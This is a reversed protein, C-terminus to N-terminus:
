DYAFDATPSTGTFAITIGVGFGVGDKPAFRDNGDAVAALRAIITGSAATNDYITATAADTGAALHVEHLRGPGTKVTEGATSHHYAHSGM